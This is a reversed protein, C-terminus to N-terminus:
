QTKKEAKQKKLSGYGNKKWVGLACWCIWLFGVTVALATGAEVWRSRDLDLVPVKLTSVLRDGSPELHYFMTKPGFLGDYGLNVRDFPNIPFKSGEDATCAWFVVPWPVNLDMIGETGSSPLLYRLHLPIDATWPIDSNSEPPALEVLLSSGWITQTYEPAELDIPKTVHRVKSLNKSAMFIPDVLQYKDPFIARPLTLHAHISCAKETTPPTNSSIQLQM